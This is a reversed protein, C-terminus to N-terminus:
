VPPSPTRQAIRARKLNAPSPVGPGRRLVLGQDTLVRDGRVQDWNEPPTLLVTGRTYEQALRRIEDHLQRAKPDAVIVPVGDPGSRHHPPSAVIAGLYRRWSAATPRAQYRDYYYREDLDGVGRGWPDTSRYWVPPTGMQPHGAVLRRSTSAWFYQGAIGAAEPVASRLLTQALHLTAGGSKVEDILVISKHDLITPAQWVKEAWEPGTPLPKRVFLARIRACLHRLGVRLDPDAEILRLRSTLDTLDLHKETGDEGIGWGRRIDTVSVGLRPFWNMRDISLFGTAPPRGQGIQNWFAAVCWRVPRASKDLYIVVDPGAFSGTDGALSETSTGDLFAILRATARTFASATEDFTWLQGDPGTQGSLIPFRRESAEIHFRQTLEALSATVM